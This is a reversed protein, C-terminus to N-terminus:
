TVAEVLSRALSIRLRPMAWFFTRSQNYAAAANGKIQRFIENLGADVYFQNFNVLVAAYLKRFVQRLGGDEM